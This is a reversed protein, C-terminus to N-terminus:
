RSTADIISRSSPWLEEMLKSAGRIFTLSANGCGGRDGGWGLVGPMEPYATKLRLMAARLKPLTWGNPNDCGIHDCRKPINPQTANLPPQFPGTARQPVMWGFAIVTRNIFGAKRAWDLRSFYGDITPSCHNPLWCVSYGEVMALDLTGDRMLEAFTDDPAGVWGAAFTDPYRRRGERCGAALNALANPAGWPDTSPWDTRNATTWEDLAIGSWRQWITGSTDTEEARFMEAVVEICNTRNDARCASPGHGPRSRFPQALDRYALVGVGKRALSAMATPPAGETLLNVGPYLGM